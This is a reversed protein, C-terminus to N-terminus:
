FEDFEIKAGLKKLHSLFDPYSDNIIEINNIQSDSNAFLAAITFSM